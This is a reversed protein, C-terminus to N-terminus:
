FFLQRLFLKGLRDADGEVEKAQYLPAETRWRKGCNFTQRIGKIYFDFAKEVEFGPVFTGGFLPVAHFPSGFVAELKHNPHM